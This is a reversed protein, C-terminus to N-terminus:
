LFVKALPGDKKVITSWGPKSGPKMKAILKGRLYIRVESIPEKNVLTEWECSIENEYKIPNILMDDEIYEIPNLFPMKGDEWNTYNPADVQNYLWVDGIIDEYKMLYAYAVRGDDEIILSYAENLDCFLQLFFESM